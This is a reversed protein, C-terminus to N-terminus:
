PAIGTSQILVLVLLITVVSVITSALIALSTEEVMTEYRQAFVYATAGVPLASMLVTVAAWLPEMHFVYTVLLFAILPHIALKVVVPAAVELRRSGGRLLLSDDQGALALGVAFLGTPAAADRLLSAFDQVPNPLSVGLVAVGAGVLVSLTIPNILIAQLVDVLIRGTGRKEGGDTKSKAESAEFSFIVAAVSPINHIVTAVAAPLAADRGFAAIALPVGMYGTNGFSGLMGHLSAAPFRRGFMAVAVAVSIFFVAVIGGVNAGVFSWDALREVPAKALSLFLLAPLAFYYVYDNLSKAGTSPVIEYHGALFGCLVIFFVPLVVGLTAWM